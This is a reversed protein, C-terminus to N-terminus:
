EWNGLHATLLIVGKGRSLAKKVIDGGNIETFMSYVKSTQM